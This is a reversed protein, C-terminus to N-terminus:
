SSFVRVVDQWRFIGLRGAAALAAAAILGKLFLRFFLPSSDVLVLGIAAALILLLLFGALPWSFPWLRQFRRAFMGALMAMTWFSALAALAAGMTGLLPIFALNVFINVAGSLGSIVPMLQTKKHYVIISVFIFYVTNGLYALVLVPMLKRAQLYEAKGLVTLIERSFLVLVFGVLSIGLLIKRASREFLSRFDPRSYNAYVFPAWAQNLGTNLIALAMSLQAAVAFVSLDVLQMMREVFIRSIYTVVWSSLAHPLLPAVFIVGAWVIQKRIVPRLYHRLAFLYVLAVAAYAMLQFTLIGALSLRFLYIAALVALFNAAFFLFSLRVTKAARREARFVALVHGFFLRFLAFVVAFQLFPRYTMKTFVRSALFDGNMHLALAIGSGLVLSFWLVSSVFEKKEEYDFFGRVIFASFGQGMFVTLIPWLTMVMSLYAFEDVSLHATYIPLLIFGLAKSLFEGGTYLLSERSLRKAENM